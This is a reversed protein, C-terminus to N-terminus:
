AEPLRRAAVRLPELWVQELQQFRTELLAAPVAALLDIWHAMFTWMLGYDWLVTWDEDSWSYGSAQALAGRYHAILDGMPLPLTDFWWLSSQVFTVLDLIAPRIGAQQWDYVTLLGDAEILINGPWYDGHTLTQPVGSFAAAIRDSYMVLRGLLQSIQPDKGSLASPTDEILQQVGHAAASVYIEFDLDFPRALWNYIALDPGLNWVRDHLAALQDLALRYDASSWDAPDKGPPLLALVLWDGQPHAAILEPVRVPLQDTLVRYLSAERRGVGATGTRTSGQPEKLVLQVTFEKGDSQCTVELGRIRGIAPRQQPIDYDSIHKINLNQDGTRRRLGATLESRSFAWPRPDSLLYPSANEDPPTKM